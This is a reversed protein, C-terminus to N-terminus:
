ARLHEGKPDVLPIQAIQAGIREGLVEVEFDNGEGTREIPLYVLGIDKGISYGYSGTRIRDVLHGNVYVSEGGYLNCNADTTLACLRTRLGEEKIKLLAERGIFDGQDLNVCFSLGAEYPNDEPTIDSSWFLYGKEIRLSDLAKYGAPQIGHRKGADM